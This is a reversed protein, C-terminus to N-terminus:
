LKESLIQPLPFQIILAHMDDIIYDKEGMRRHHRDNVILIM